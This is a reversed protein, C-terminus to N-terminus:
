NASLMQPVTRRTHSMVAHELAFNSFVSGALASLCYIDELLFYIFRFTVKREVPIVIKSKVMPMANRAMPIQRFSYAITIAFAILIQKSHIPIPYYFLSILVIGGNKEPKM